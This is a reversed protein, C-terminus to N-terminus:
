PTRDSVRLLNVEKTALAVFSKAGRIIGKGVTILYLSSLQSRLAVVNEESLPVDNDTMIIVDRYGNSLIDQAVVDYSTGGTTFLRTEYADVEVLQESFQIVKQCHGRLHKMIEPIIAYFEEMSKSVDAYLVIPDQEIDFRQTYYVPIYGSAAMTIARKDLVPYSVLGEIVPDLDRTSLIEGVMEKVLAQVREHTKHVCETREMVSSKKPLTSLLQLLFASDTAVEPTVAFLGNEGPETSSGTIGAQCESREISDGPEDWGSPIMDKASEMLAETLAQVDDQPNPFLGAYDIRKPFVKAWSNVFADYRDFSGGETAEVVSLLLDQAHEKTIVQSDTRFMNAPIHLKGMRFGTFKTWQSTLLIRRDSVDTIQHYRDIIDSSIVSRIHAAVFVDECLIDAPREKYLAHLLRRSRELLVFTLFDPYSNVFTLFFAPNIALIGTYLDCVMSEVCFTFTVSRIMGFLFTLKGSVGRDTQDRMENLSKSSFLAQFLEREALQRDKALLAQKAPRLIANSLDVTEQEPWSM